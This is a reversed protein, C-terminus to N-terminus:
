KWLDFFEKTEHNYTAIHLGGSYVLGVGEQNKDYFLTLINGNSNHRIAEVRNDGPFVEQLLAIFNSPVEYDIPQWPQWKEGTCSLFTQPTFEFGESECFDTELISLICFELEAKSYHGYEDGIFNLIDTLTGFTVVEREPESAREDFCDFDEAKPFSFGKDKALNIYDYLKPYTKLIEADADVFAFGIEEPDDTLDESCQEISLQEQGDYFIDKGWNSYCLTEIPVWLQAFKSTPYKECLIELLSNYRGYGDSYWRIKNDNQKLGYIIVTDFSGMSNQTESSTVIEQLVAFFKDIDETPDLICAVETDCIKGM